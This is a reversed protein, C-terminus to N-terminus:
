ASAVRQNFMPQVSKICKTHSQEHITRRDDTHQM